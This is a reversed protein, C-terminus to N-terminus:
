NVTVKELERLDIVLFGHVDDGAVVVVACSKECDEGDSDFWNVIPLRVGSSTVVYDDSLNVNM